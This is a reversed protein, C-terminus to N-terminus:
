HMRVKQFAEFRQLYEARSGYGMGRRSNAIFNAFLSEQDQGALSETRSPSILLAIVVSLVLVVSVLAVVLGVIYRRLTRETTSNAVYGTSGLKTAETNNLQIQCCAETENLIEDQEATPPSPPEQHVPQDIVSGMCVM